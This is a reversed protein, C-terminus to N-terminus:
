SKWAVLGTPRPHPTTSVDACETDGLAHAEILLIGLEPVALILVAEHVVPVSPRQEAGAAGGHEAEDDGPVAVDGVMGTGVGLGTRQLVAGLEVDHVLGLPGDFDGFHEDSVSFQGAGDM